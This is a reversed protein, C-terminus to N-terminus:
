HYNRKLRNGTTFRTTTRGEPCILVRTVIHVGITCNKKLVHTVVIKAVPLRRLVNSSSRVSRRCSHRIKLRIGILVSPSVFAVYRKVSSKVEYRFQRTRLRFLFKNVASCTLRASVSSSCLFPRTQGSDRYRLSMWVVFGLRCDSRTRTDLPVHNNDM